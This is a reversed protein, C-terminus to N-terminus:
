QSCAPLVSCCVFVAYLCDHDPSRDSLRIIIVVLFFDHLGQEMQLISRRNGWRRNPVNSSSLNRSWVIFINYLLQFRCVTRFRLLGPREINEERPVQLLFGRKCCFAQKGLQLKTVWIANDCVVLYYMKYTNQWSLTLQLYMNKNGRKM